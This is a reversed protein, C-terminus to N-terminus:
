EQLPYRNILLARVPVGSPSEPFCWDGFPLELLVRVDFCQFQEDTDYALVWPQKVTKLKAMYRETKLVRPVAVAPRLDSVTREFVDLEAPTTIADGDMFVIYDYESSKLAEHCLTRRGVSWSSKPLFISGPRAADWTLSILTRGAFIQHLKDIEPVRGQALYCFRRM